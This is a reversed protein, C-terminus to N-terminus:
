NTASIICDALLKEEQQLDAAALDFAYADLVINGIAGIRRLGKPSGHRNQHVLIVRNARYSLAYTIAQNYDDRNPKDKYKVEAIVKKGTAVSSVVIDAQASPDKRDDFLPKKALVNGDEVQVVSPDSWQGIANRIYDEFTTEFNVIFSELAIDNGYHQLSIGRSSLMM